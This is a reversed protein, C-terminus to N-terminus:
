IRKIIGCDTAVVDIAVCGAADLGAVVSSSEVVAFM